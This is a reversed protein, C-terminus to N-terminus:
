YETVSVDVSGSDCIASIEGTFKDASPLEVHFVSANDNGSFRRSLLMGHKTNDQSAPYVRIFVDRDSTGPAMDVRFFIGGRLPVPLAPRITTATTSNVTYTTVAGNDSTNVNRGVKVTM